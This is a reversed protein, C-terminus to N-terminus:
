DSSTADSPMRWGGPDVKLELVCAFDAVHKLLDKMLTPNGDLGQKWVAKDVTGIVLYDNGITEPALKQFCNALEAELEHQHLMILECKACYKGTKGLLLPGWGDIHICFAFKRAFTPKRCQPCKSLRQDPYRNLIFSYRPPLEGVTTRRTEKKTM